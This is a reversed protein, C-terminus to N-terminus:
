LVYPAAPAAPVAVPAASEPAGVVTVTRAHKHGYQRAFERLAPLCAAKAQWRAEAIRHEATLRDFENKAKNIEALSSVFFKESNWGAFLEPTATWNSELQDALRGDYRRLERLFHSKLRLLDKRAEHHRENVDAMVVHAQRAAEEIAALKQLNIQM